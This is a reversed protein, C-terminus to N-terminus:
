LRAGEPVATPRRRSGPPAERRLSLRSALDFGFASAFAYAYYVLWVLFIVYAGSVASPNVRWVLVSAAVVGLLGAAIATEAASTRLAAGFAARAGMAREPIKPTRAFPIRSGAWARAAARLDNLKIAYWFTLVGLVDRFRVPVTEELAARIKILGDLMLLVPAVAVVVPLGIASYPLWVGFWSAVVLGCLAAAMAVLFLGDFWFLGTVWFDIRQRFTLRRSALLERNMRLMQIGGFAWRRQQSRVATMLDPALGRGLIEPVYKGKWEHALLRITLEADETVCKESWGGAGELAARRLIGMTGCFILSQHRARVPQVVRYFYADALQYWWSLAGRRVNRYAQPTQVFALRPERFEPLIRRLFSPDVVYDSDVIAVYSVAPSAAQLGDNLAGGKFGRREARHRFDIELRACDQALAEVTSPDTSDDCLQIALRDSPYDLRRLSELCERVIEPPENYSAVQVLVYPTAEAEGEVPEDSSAPSTGAVHELVYFQYVLMLVFGFLVAGVLWAGLAQALASSSTEVVALSVAVFGLVLLQLGVYTAVGSYSWRSSWSIWGVFAGTGIAAAIAVLNEIVYVSEAGSGWRVAGGLAFLGEFLTRGIREFGLALRGGAIGVLSGWAQPTGFLISLGSSERVILQVLLPSLAGALVQSAVPGQGALLAGFLAAGGAILAAAVVRFWKSSARGRPRDADGRPTRGLSFWGWLLLLIGAVTWVLGTTAIELAAPSVGTGALSALSINVGFAAGISV